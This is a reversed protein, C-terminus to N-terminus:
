RSQELARRAGQVDGRALRGRLEDRLREGDVRSALFFVAREVVVALTAVSLAVLLWLIWTAGLDALHSLRQSLHM